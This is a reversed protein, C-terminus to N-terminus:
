RACGIARNLAASKGPRPEQRILTVRPDPYTAVLRDTADTSGDSVVIVEIRDAPYGPGLASALKARICGAENYAAVIVSLFPWSAVSPVALRRRAALAALVLPYLIWPYAALGAALWFVVAVISETMGRRGRSLCPCHGRRARRHRIARPGAPMGRPGHAISRRSRRSTGAVGARAGA